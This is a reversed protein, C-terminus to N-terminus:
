LQNLFINIGNKLMHCVVINVYTEIVISRFRIDIKRFPLVSCYILQFIIIIIPASHHKLTFGLEFENM